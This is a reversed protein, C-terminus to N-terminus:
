ANLGEGNRKHWDSHCKPCLWTVGLPQSYDDHHGHLNETNDCCECVDAKVIKGDRIANGLLIHAARKVTNKEQWKKKARIGAAKGEDTLSYAKRAAAREPNNARAKDYAKQCEKCKHALGDPSATRKGFESVDKDLNCSNCHKM